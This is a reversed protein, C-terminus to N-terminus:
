MRSHASPPLHNRPRMYFAGAIEADRKAKIKDFIDLRHQIFEPKEPLQIVFTLVLQFWDWRELSLSSDRIAERLVHPPIKPPAVVLRSVRLSRAARPARRRPSNPNSLLVPPFLRRRLARKRRPSTLKSLRCRQPDRIQIPHLSSLHQDAIAPQDQLM